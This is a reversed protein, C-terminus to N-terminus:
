AMQLSGILHALLYCCCHKRSMKMDLYKLHWLGQWSITSIVMRLWVTLKNKNMVKLNMDAIIKQLLNTIDFPASLCASYVPHSPQSPKSKMNKRSIPSLCQNWTPILLWDQVCPESDMTLCPSSFAQCRLWMELHM